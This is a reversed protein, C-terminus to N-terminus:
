TSKQEVYKQIFQTLKNFFLKPSSEMEIADFIKNTYEEIWPKSTYLIYDEYLVGYNFKVVIHYIPINSPQRRGISERIHLETMEFRYNCDEWEESYFIDLNNM